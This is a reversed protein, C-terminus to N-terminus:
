GASPRTSTRTSAMVTSADCPTTSSAVAVGQDASKRYWRAAETADKTIGFGNLIMSGLDNQAFAHGQEAAFTYWKLAEAFDQATLADGIRYIDGLRSQARADGAQAADILGQRETFPESDELCM